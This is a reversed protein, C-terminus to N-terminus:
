PTVVEELWLRSGIPILTQGLPEPVWSWGLSHTSPHRVVQAEVVNGGLLTRRVRQSGRLEIWAAPPVSQRAVGVAGAGPIQCPQPISAVLDGTGPRFTWPLDDCGVLYGPSSFEFTTLTKSLDYVASLAAYPRTTPGVDIRVTSGSRIISYPPSPCALSATVSSETLLFNDPGDAATCGGILYYGNGVAVPDPGTPVKGCAVLFLLLPPWLTRALLRAGIM